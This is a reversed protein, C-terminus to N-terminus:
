YPRVVVVIIIICTRALLDSMIILFMVYFKSRTQCLLVMLSSCLIFPLFVFTDRYKHVVGYFVCEQKIFCWTMFIYQPTSTHSWVNNVEVNSLSSHDAECGLWKVGLYSGKTGVPYFAPHAGSSTHVCQHLSFVADNCRIPM